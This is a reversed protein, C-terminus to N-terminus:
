WLAIYENYFDPLYLLACLLFNFDGTLIVQTWHVLTWKLSHKKKRPVYVCERGQCVYM